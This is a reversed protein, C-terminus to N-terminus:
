KGVFANLQWVGRRGHNTHVKETVPCSGYHKARQPIFSQSPKRESELGGGNRGKDM